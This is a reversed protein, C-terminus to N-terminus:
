HHYASIACIILFRVVLRDRGRGGRLPQFAFTSDSDSYV